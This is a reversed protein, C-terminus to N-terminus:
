LDNLYQEPDYIMVILDDVYSGIYEYLDKTPDPFRRMEISPEAKYLNFASAVWSM